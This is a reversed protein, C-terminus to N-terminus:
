ELVLKIDSLFMSVDYALPNGTSPDSEIKYFGSSVLDSLRDRAAMVEKSRVNSHKGTVYGYLFSVVLSGRYLEKDSSTSLFIAEVEEKCSNSLVNIDSDSLHEKIQRIVAHSKIIAYFNIM